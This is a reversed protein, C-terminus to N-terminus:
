RPPGVTGPGASIGIPIVTSVPSSGSSGNGKMTAAAVGGAAAAGAVALIILVKKGSGSSARKGPVSMNFQTINTRATRGRYSANVHIQLKGPIRDVKLGQAAAQGQSDTTVLMNKSGNSFEGSAGDTPLTFQVAAGAIPQHNEDEVRVVPDRTARQGISNVAGEGAVTVIEIRAPPNQGYVPPASQFVVLLLALWISLAKTSNILLM